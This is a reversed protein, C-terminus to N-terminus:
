TSNFTKRPPPPSEALELLKRTVPGKPKINKKEALKKLAARWEEDREALKLVEHGRLKVRWYNWRGCRWKGIHARVGIGKLEEACKRAEEESKFSAVAYLERDYSLRFKYSRGTPSAYEAYIPNPSGRSPSTSLRKLAEWKPVNLMDLLQGYGNRYAARVMDAALSKPKAEFSNGVCFVLARPHTKGDGLYWAFLGLASERAIKQAEKKPIYKWDKAVIGWQLSPPLRARLFMGSIKVDISGPRVSSWAFVQWEQTTFMVPHTGGGGCAGEDSAAWGMQAESIARASLIQPFVASSAVGHIPLRVSLSSARSQTVIAFWAAGRPRVHFTRRHREIILANEDGKELADILERLREEAQARAENLLRILKEKFKLLDNAKEETLNFTYMINNVVDNIYKEIENFRTSLCAQARSAREHVEKLVASLENARLSRGGARPGSSPARTRGEIMGVVRARTGLAGEEPASPPRVWALPGLAPPPIRAHVAARAVAYWRESWVLERGLQLRCPTVGGRREGAGGAQRLADRGRAATKVAAVGRCSPDVPSPPPHPLPFFTPQPSRPPVSCGACRHEGDNSSSKRARGEREEGKGQRARVPNM